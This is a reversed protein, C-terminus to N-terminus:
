SAEKTVVFTSRVLGVNLELLLVLLFQLFLRATEGEFEFFSGKSYDSLSFDSFRVFATLM